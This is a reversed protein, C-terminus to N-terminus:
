QDMSQEDRDGLWHGYRLHSCVVGSRYSRNHLKKKGEVLSGSGSCSNAGSQAKPLILCWNVDTV